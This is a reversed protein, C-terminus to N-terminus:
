VFVESSGESIKLSIYIYHLVWRTIPCINRTVQKNRVRKYARRFTLEDSYTIFTRECVGETKPEVPNELKPEIANEKNLDDSPFNMDMFTPDEPSM